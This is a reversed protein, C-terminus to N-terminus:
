QHHVTKVRHAGEKMEVGKIGWSWSTSPTIRLYKGPGFMGNHDVVEAAGYVKIGRPRWPDVSELDDVALAVWKNGDKVNKYKRTRHFVDQNYSGVYFHKGDFEFAVPVM